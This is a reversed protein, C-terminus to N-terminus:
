TKLNQEVAFICTRCMNPIFVAHRKQAKELILVFYNVIGQLISGAADTPM